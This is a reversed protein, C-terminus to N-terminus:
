GCASSPMREAEPVVAGLEDLLQRGRRRYDDAKEPIVHSADLYARALEYRMSQTGARIIAQEIRAVARRHEGLAWALRAGVRLAHPVLNPFATGARLASRILWRARALERREVGGGADAWSSGLISEAQLSYSALIWDTDWFRKSLYVISGALVRQSDEYRSALLLVQGHTTVAVQRLISSPSSASALLARESLGIAERFQGTHALALAVGFAGGGRFLSNGTQEGLVIMARSVALTDEFNGLYAYSRRLSIMAVHLHWHSHRELMPRVGCVLEVAQHLDGRLYYAFGISSMAVARSVPSRCDEAYSQALALRRHGVFRGVHITLRLMLRAYALAVHDPDCTKKALALGRLSIRFADLPKMAMSAVGGLDLNAQSAIRLGELTSKAPPRTRLAPLFLGVLSRTLDLPWSMSWCRTEKIAQTLTDRAQDLDEKQQHMAGIGRLAVALSVRDPALEAAASYCEMARDTQRTSGNARGLLEWLRYRDAPQTKAPLVARAKNLHVVADGYAGVECSDAGADLLYRFAKGEADAVLFHGALAASPVSSGRERWLELIEGARRHLARRRAAALDGYVLERLVDHAFEVRSANHTERFVRRPLLADIADLVDTESLDPLIGRLVDIDVVAGIVAAANLVQQVKPSLGQIRLRMVDRVTDPLDTSDSVTTALVWGRETRTIAQKDFWDRVTEAVFFPNGGCLAHVRSVLDAALEEPGCNLRLAILERTEPETLPQLLLEQLHRQERLQALLTELTAYGTRASAVIVLRPVASAGDASRRANALAAALHRLLDLSSRDAWQIDEFSLCVPQLTAVELFFAALARHIYDAERGYDVQQYAEGPLYKRLEPAIRLLEGRYDNVVGLLGVLSAIPVGATHTATLDADTPTAERREQLKLEAMLQRLVEVIPHFPSQNGDFCRGEYVQCGHGRAVREAEQVVSSKGIGPEGSVVVLAAPVDEGPEARELHLCRELVDHILEQEHNRCVFGTVSLTPRQSPLFVGSVAVQEDVGLAAALASRLLGASNPRRMSQKRLYKMVVEAIPGPVDPSVEALPRPKHKLQAQMLPRLGALRAEPFPYRGSLVEYVVLGLCYLDARHDLEDLNIQEPSCYAVTGVFGAEASLSSKVGYYKALGFDMLRTEFRPTGEGHGAARVLINSPKVDRHVIGHGHIYDLAHTLQLLPDLREAVPRSALSTIPEGLFLEMTFFPSGEVEGYDYVGLCHPHRLASLSRFEREFRRRATGSLISKMLKLAVERGDRADRARYVVGMGGEGLKAGIRFREHRLDAAIDPSSPGGPESTPDGATSVDRAASLEQFSRTGDYQQESGTGADVRAM